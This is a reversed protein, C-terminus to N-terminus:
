EVYVDHLIHWVNTVCAYCISWLAYTAYVWQHMSWVYILTWTNVSCICWPTYVAHAGHLVHWMPMSCCICHLFVIRATYNSGANSINLTVWHWRGQGRTVLFFPHFLPPNRRSFTTFIEKSKLAPKWSLWSENYYLPNKQFYHWFTIRSKSKCTCSLLYQVFLYWSMEWIITLHWSKHIVKIRTQKVSVHGQMIINFM